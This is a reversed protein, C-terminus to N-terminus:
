WLYIVALNVTEEWIVLLESLLCYAGEGSKARMNLHRLVRLVRPAVQSCVATLFFLSGSVCLNLNVVHRGVGRSCPPPVPGWAFTCYELWFPDERKSASPCTAAIERERQRRTENSGHRGPKLGRALHPVGGCLPTISCFCEAQSHLQNQKLEQPSLSLRFSTQQIFCGCFPLGNLYACSM